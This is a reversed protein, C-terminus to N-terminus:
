KSYSVHNTLFAVKLMILPSLIRFQEDPSSLSEILKCVVDLFVIHYNDQSCIELSNKLSIICHCQKILETLEYCVSCVFFRLRHKLFCEFDKLPKCIAVLVGDFDFVSQPKQKINQIVRLSMTLTGVIFPVFINLLYARISLQLYIYYARLTNGVASM